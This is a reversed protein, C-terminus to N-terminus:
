QLYHFAKLLDNNSTGNMSMVTISAMYHDHCKIFILLTEITVNGEAVISLSLAPREEGMCSVTTQKSSKVTYGMATFQPKSQELEQDCYEQISLSEKSPPIKQITVLAVGGNTKNQVMMDCITADNEMEYVIKPAVKTNNMKAIDEDSFFKHNDDFECGIGLFNNTYYIKASGSMESITGRINEHNIQNNCSCLLLAFCLIVAFLNKKNNKM